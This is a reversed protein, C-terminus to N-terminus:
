LNTFNSKHNEFARQTQAWQSSHKEKSGRIDRLNELYM